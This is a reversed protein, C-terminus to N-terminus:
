EGGDKRINRKGHDKGAETGRTCHLKVPNSFVPMRKKKCLHSVVCHAVAHNYHFYVRKDFSEWRTYKFLLTDM